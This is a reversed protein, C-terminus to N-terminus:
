ARYACRTEWEKVTQKRKALIHHVFM